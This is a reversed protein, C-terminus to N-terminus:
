YVVFRLAEGQDTRLIYMGPALANVAANETKRLEMVVQGNANCIIGSVQRNFRLMGGTVPNPYLVLHDVLVLTEDVADPENSFGPTPQSFAMWDSGGDFSRGRAVDTVQPGFTVSDLIPFGEAPRGSLRLKEGDASIRFPAHQEGQEPQGDLWVLFFEKPNLYAFPFKYKGPAGMDDSLFLSGMWVRASTPNYIEVWDDYEGYEDMMSSSNSAMFENILLPGNALPFSVSLFDAPYRTEQGGNDIATFYLDVVAEGAPSGLSDLFTFTASVPDMIPPGAPVLTQWEGENIRYHLLTSFGARDDEVTWDVRITEKSPKVRAHSILPPADVNICEELASESRLSAYELVGYPLWWDKPIGTTLANQFDSFEYGFDLSYYPDQSVWPSIQDRWRYVEQEMEDSAMYAALKKIYGTFQKRYLEQQMIQDYLPREERSWQYISQTAWDVGLWDLGWTNDLDYPIYGFRGTAQDRYLYYNNKNGIYGDWNATMVDVAMIKLYQQVNMIKEVQAMFASGSYDHIAAILAALDGYDDWEANIRLDYARRDGQQDMYDDPNDGQYALDAPWLCKYLNGDNNGFRTRMFNEDIQETNIYVGYFTENIYLLVHNSRAAPIGLMRFLSWSLRSRIMSPDNTEANLNMEEIGHFKKGSEFTNFSIRFSKKQKDRSTNGRCRMGVDAMEETVGERTMRFQAKYEMDSWPDGYLSELDATPIAIDIRPVQTDDYVFGPDPHMVQAYLAGAFLLISGLM